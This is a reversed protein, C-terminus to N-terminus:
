LHSSVKADAHLQEPSQKNTNGSLKEKFKPQSSNYQKVNFRPSLYTHSNKLVDANSHVQLMSGSYSAKFPKIKWDESGGCNEDDNENFFEVDPKASSHKVGSAPTYDPSIEGLDESKRASSFM